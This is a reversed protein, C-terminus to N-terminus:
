ILFRFYRECFNYFYKDELIYIQGDKYMLFDKNKYHVRALFDANYRDMNLPPSRMVSLM